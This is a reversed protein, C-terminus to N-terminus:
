DNIKRRMWAIGAGGRKQSGTREIADRYFDILRSVIVDPYFRRECGAAAQRGLEAAREPDSLLMGIKAALDDADGPRHALADVGEEFAETMGGARAAVLPCGMSMAEILVRSITEYRSCVVNVMAKRRYENLVSFPQSGKLTVIGAELAGPMRDRVFEELHWLKGQDDLLGHDPGVFWLRARPLNRSVKSFAEIILDGGKHRDFRGIFLVLDPDCGTLSWRAAPAIPPTPPPLVLADKM